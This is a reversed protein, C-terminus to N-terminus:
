IFEFFVFLHGPLLIKGFIGEKESDQAKVEELCKYKYLQFNEYFFSARISIHGKLSLLLGKQHFEIRLFFVLVHNPLVTGYATKNSKIKFTM